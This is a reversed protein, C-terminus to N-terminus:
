FHFLQAASDAEPTGEPWKEKLHEVACMKSKGSSALVFGSLLSLTLAPPAAAGAARPLSPASQLSGCHQSSSRPLAPRLGAKGDQLHVGELSDQHRIAGICECEEIIIFDVPGSPRGTAAIGQRAKPSHHCLYTTRM